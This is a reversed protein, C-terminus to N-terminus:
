RPNSSARSHGPELVLGRGARHLTRDWKPVDTYRTSSSYDTAARLGTPAPNAVSHSGHGPGRPALITPHPGRSVTCGAEALGIGRRIPLAPKLVKAPTPNTGLERLASADRRYRESQRAPFPKHRDPLGLRLPNEHPRSPSTIPPLGAAARLFPATAALQRSSSQRLAESKGPCLPGRRRRPRRDLRWRCGVARRSRMQARFRRPPSRGAAAAHRPGSQPAIAGTRSAAIPKGRSPM